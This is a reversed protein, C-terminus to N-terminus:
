IDTLHEKLLDGLVIPLKEAIEALKADPAYTELAPKGGETVGVGVVIVGQGRMKELANKVRQVGHSQGDTFVIIIKKLEGDRIKQATEEDLAREIAELSIFDTTKQGPASSLIAVAEIREKEGLDKSMKKIPVADAATAQFTYIESRVELPKELNIRESDVADAFEKLAEMMLVGAKRQETLKAGGEQAMSGSRDCVLTIEIEGFKKGTKEKVEHTQWAKPELNGAKVQSMLESPDVLEEGEEVPYRPAISPKLRRAIIRNILQRLEDIVSEGTEPNVTKELSAVIERYRRLDEPKVGLKDAYERDARDAPNESHGEQWKKFAKEIEENPVANPVRSAAEKYDDAFIENPDTPSEQGREATPKPSALPEGKDGTESGKGGKGKGKNKNHDEVDKKMLEEVVPWLFADQLLLRESMSTTPRTMAEMLSSGDKGRIAQIEDLKARVEPSVISKEDPVEGERSLAEVFQIHKPKSTFDTEPILVEKYLSHKLREFEGGEKDTNLIIARNERLDSVRNDLFNFAQSDNLRKLYRQFVRSGGTESLIQKKELLHEVEHLTGLTTQQDSLGRQKYFRSNIYITNTELNFAFTNLGPPAPEFKVRGRAYHEFFDRNKEVFDMAERHVEAESGSEEKASGGEQKIVPREHEM